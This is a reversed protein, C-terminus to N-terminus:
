LALGLIINILENPSFPKSLYFDCGANFAKEKDEPFAYATIVIIPIDKNYEKIKQTAELGNMIPLKIDMIILSIDETEKARKVAKDGETERIIEANHKKLITEFLLYSCDDDEVILVKM